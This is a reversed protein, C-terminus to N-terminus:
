RTPTPIKDWVQHGPNADIQDFRTWTLTKGDPSVRYM